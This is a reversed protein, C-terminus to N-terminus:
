EAGGTALRIEMRAGAAGEGVVADGGHMRALHRVVALGLGSGGNRGRSYPAWVRDRESVPIGPGEDEVILLISPGQNDIVMRIKQDDPGLRIANDLLNVLIRRMASGDIEAHGGGVHDVDVRMRRSALRPTFADIAEASLRRLDERGTEIREEARSMRALSLVNEVMDGLRRTERTITELAARRSAPDTAREHLLTEAYLHINALPTRLEHSVASTFEQRLRALALVRWVMWAVGATLALALAIFAAVWTGPAAPYGGPMLYVAAEPGLTVMVAAPFSTGGAAASGSWGGEIPEGFELLPASDLTVTTRFLRNITSAALTSDAPGALMGATRRPLPALVKDAFETNSVEFGVWGTGNRRPELFALSQDGPRDIAILLYSTGDPVISDTRDKLVALLAEDIAGDSSLPLWRNGTRQFFQRPNPAPNDPSAMRRVAEDLMSATTHRRPSRAVEQAVELMARAAFWTQNQYSNRYSIAIYAAHDRLTEDATTRHHEMSLWLARGGIAIMLLVAAFALVVLAEVTTM